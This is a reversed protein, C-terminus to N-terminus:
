PNGFVISEFENRLLELMLKNCSSKHVNGHIFVNENYKIKIPCLINVYILVINNNTLSSTTHFLIPNISSYPNM